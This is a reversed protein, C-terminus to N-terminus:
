LTISETVFIGVKCSSKMLHKKSQSPTLLFLWWCKMLMNNVRVADSFIPVLVRCLCKMLMNNMRHSCIYIYIYIDAM